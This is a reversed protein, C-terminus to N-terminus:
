FGVNLGFTFTRPQPVPRNDIATAINTNNRNYNVEPDPGSYGTILFANYVQAYIRLNSIGANALAQQRFTYGLNVTRLRIFDAKELFRTSTQNATNDRLYLKPVDTKQGVATWRSLIEAYNNQFYNTLMGSRTSNYVYNGGTYVFSFSLDLSKYTLTNDFGGYFKPMGTKGTYIADSASIASTASKDGLTWKQTSPDYFKRVGDKTLFSGNGTEPDVGAWRILKYEGLPKGVSAVGATFNPDTLDATTVLSNIKNKVYTFNLSSTWTFDKTTVNVTNVTFEFGKNHMAGINTFVAANPIGVTSLVPANLILGSVNNDFYEAIVSIRSNFLNVDLGIDLKKSSEWKLKPNGAQSTSFGNQAAYLGGGYLTRSAYDALGRSNGVKGYSARIKLYNIVPVDQFFTEKSIVWGASVSPFKGWRNSIGFASFGDARMAVDLMYRDNFVYGIRGFYSELGSSTKNGGSWLQLDGGSDNGTYTNDLIAKFFPDAFDSAGSYTNRDRTYQYEAGGTLSVRHKDAFTHDYTLFNQWVWQIRNRFYDQVLGNFSTGLGNLYPSSYQDEFNNLYDIGYKSTLKLGAIPQIEIFGNGQLQEPTNQNRNLDIVAVANNINNQILNTANVTSINNGFGLLGSENLNYGTVNDPNMVSVNPFSNYGSVTAGALYRDTLVGNNLSKTYSFSIGAKLWKVPTVDANLRVQGTKLSNGAAIGKQDTYRVSGYYTSKESGGSLSLNNDHTFGTRYLEDLWNTRDPKGDGDLDSDVAIKFDNAVGFRTAANTMKENNITTFQDGDLLKPLAAAKSWGVKSEYNIRSSGRKGRKTTVLVVGNAARSGYMVAAAADKLVEISEIDNPNLLALPNFRTGNGGNFLNLNETSNQPVGDVVILPLSSISISNVGRVRISVGDGLVGGSSTVQVGAMKGSLAQDFSPIPEAALRNGKVSSQSGTLDKIQRTGYGVVVVEDLARKDSQLSVTVVQKNGISVEQEVYGVFSFVLVSKGAPVSLSYKGDLGTVTGTNSGKIRVTVGPLPAGDDTSSVKGNITREQALANVVILLLFFLGQLKKKM